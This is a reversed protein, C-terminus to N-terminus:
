NPRVAPCKPCVDYKRELDWVWDAKRAKMTADVITTGYFTAQQTCKGCTLTLEINGGFINGIVPNDTTARSSVGEREIRLKERETALFNRLEARDDVAAGCPQSASEIGPTATVDHSVGATADAIIAAVRDDSPPGIIGARFPRFGCAVTPDL